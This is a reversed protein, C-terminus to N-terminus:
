RLRSLANRATDAAFSLPPDADQWLERVAEYLDAALSDSGVREAAAAARYLSLPRLGWTDDLLGISAPCSAASRYAALAVSDAGVAAALVGTLYFERPRNRGRAQGAVVRALQQRAEDARGQDAAILGRWVDPIALDYESWGDFWAARAAADLTLAPGLGMSELAAQRLLAAQRATYGPEEWERALAAFSRTLTDGAVGTAGFVRLLGIPAGVDGAFVLSGDLPDEAAFSALPWGPALIEAAREPQGTAMFVNAAAGPALAGGEDAAATRLEILAAEALSVAAVPEGAALSLVALRVRDEPTTDGRLTLARELRELAERSLEVEATPQADCQLLSQRWLIQETWEEQPRPQDPQISAWRQLYSETRAAGLMAREGDSPTVEDVRVWQISDREVPCFAEQDRAERTAYPPLLPGGSPEYAPCGRGLAADAIRRDLDFLQGYSLQFDPSLRATTEFARRAVNLNSRPLPPAGDPEALWPDAFEVAGLLLWAETDTSDRALIAQYASRARAYDGEWFTRFASVHERLGPRLDREDALREALRTLRAIEPGLDVIREPNRSTQWYLTLGLYHHPLAFLSDNAIAERFHGEADPLRWGYLADLGDQFEQHARPNPSESRLTELEAPQDRLNLIEQTVPAVLGDLELALGRTLMPPGVPRGESADYLTAELFASDGDVEATLAILTGVRQRRAVEIGLDISALTPGSVGLDYMVGTLAFDPVVRVTQWGRLQRTIRAAAHEALEAEDQTEARHTFPLVVYSGRPDEVAYASEPSGLRWGMEGAAVWAASFFLVLGVLAAIGAPWRRRRPESAIAELEGRRAHETRQVGEPTIDFTWALVLAVPFGALVLLTIVTLVRQPLGLGGALLDSAELVAFAIGGYVAAVRFVRRRKLDALFTQWAPTRDSM